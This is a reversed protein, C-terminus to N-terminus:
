SQVESLLSPELLIGDTSHLQQSSATLATGNMVTTAFAMQDLYHGLYTMAPKDACRTAFATFNLLTLPDLSSLMCNDYLGLRPFELPSIANSIDLDTSTGGEASTDNLQANLDTCIGDMDTTIEGAAQIELM